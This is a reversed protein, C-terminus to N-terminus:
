TVVELVSLLETIAKEKNALMVSCSAGCLPIQQLKIAGPKAIVTLHFCLDLCEPDM